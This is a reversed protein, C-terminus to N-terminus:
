GHLYEQLQATRSPRRRIQILAGEEIQRVRERTINLLEAVEELPAVFFAWRCLKVSRQWLDGGSQFPQGCRESRATFTECLECPVPAAYLPLGDGGDGERRAPIM